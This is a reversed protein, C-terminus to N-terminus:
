PKRLSIIVLKSIVRSVGATDKALAIARVAMDSSTVSGTLTVIGNNVEIGIDEPKILQEQAYRQSISVNIEADNMLPNGTPAFASMDTYSERQQRYKEQAKVENAAEVEANSDVGPIWDTVDRVTSCAGLFIILVPLGLKLIPQTANM